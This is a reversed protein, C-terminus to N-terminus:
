LQKQSSLFDIKEAVAFAEKSSMNKTSVSYYRNNNQWHINVINDSDFHEFIADNNRLNLKLVMVELM